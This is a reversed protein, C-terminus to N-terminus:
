SEEVKYFNDCILQINDNRVELKGEMVVIENNQVHCKTKKELDALTKPFIVTDIEKQSDSLSLFMMPDGNKTTIKRTKSVLGFVKVKKGIMSNNLLSVETIDKRGKNRLKNLPHDSMYVGM